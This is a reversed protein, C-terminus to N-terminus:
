KNSLGFFFSVSNSYSKLAICRKYCAKSNYGSKGNDIITDALNSGGDKSDRRDKTSTEKSNKESKSAKGVSNTESKSKEKKESKSDNTTATNSIDYCNMYSYLISEEQGRIACAQSGGRCFRKNLRHSAHKTIDKLSAMDYQSQDM